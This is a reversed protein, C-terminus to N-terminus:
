PSSGIRGSRYVEAYLNGLEELGLKIEKKKLRISTRFSEALSEDMKGGSLNQAHAFLYMFSTGARALFDSLLSKSGKVKPWESRLTLLKSRLEFELQHALNKTGIAIGKFPDAGYLVKSNQTIDQFEIPFVDASDKLEEVGWFLPIINAKKRARHISTEISDICSLSVERLLVMVNVDSRRLIHEGKAASGYLVVSVLNEGLSKKLSEVFEDLYEQM